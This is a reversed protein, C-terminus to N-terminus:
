CRQLLYRNIWISWNIWRLQFNDATLIIQCCTAEWWNSDEFCGPHEPIRWPIHFDIFLSMIISLSDYNITENNYNCHFISTVIVGVLCIGWCWKCPIQMFFKCLRTWKEGRNFIIILINILHLSSSAALNITHVFIRESISVIFKPNKLSKPCYRNFSCSSVPKWQNISITDEM